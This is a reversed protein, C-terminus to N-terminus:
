NASPRAAVAEYWRKFNGCSDPIEVKCVKLAFGTACLATIDAVTFRSGTVFEKDGIQADFKEFFWGTRARGREVLEPIQDIQEARGPLGRGAFAPHSNRFLEGVAGIGEMDARREWMDVQARDLADTGMLPPAPHFHELYRCIAMSEGIITGDDLELAPVLRHAGTALYDNSLRAGKAGVDITEIELGKEKIFIAVRRPNPASGWNYFKM